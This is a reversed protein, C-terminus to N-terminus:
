SHASSQAIIENATQYFCAAIDKHKKVAEVQNEKPTLLRIAFFLRAQEELNSFHQPLHEKLTAVKSGKHYLPIDSPKVKEPDPLVSCLFPIGLENEMKDELITLHLPNAFTTLFQTRFQPDLVLIKEKEFGTITFPEQKFALAPTYTDGSRTFGLLTQQAKKTSSNKRKTSEIRDILAGDSFEWVEEASFIKGQISLEVAKQIHRELALSHPSLYVENYMRFYFNQLACVIGIPDRHQGERNKIEIGLGGDHFTLYPLLHQWNPPSQDFQCYVADMQTYAIKDAGMTKDSCITRASNEGQLLKKLQTIDADSIELVESLTRGRSDTKSSNLLFLARRNHDMGTMGKLVHEIAHSFPPHGADHLKAYQIIDNRSCPLRGIKELVECYSTVIAATYCTHDYRTHNASPFIAEIQGLQKIGRLGQLVPHNLVLDNAAFLSCYDMGTHLM